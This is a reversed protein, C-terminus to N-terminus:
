ILSMTCDICDRQVAIVGRYLHCRWYVLSCVYSFEFRPANRSYVLCCVHSYKFRPANRSYVLSCVNSFKFRPATRSSISCTRPMSRSGGPGRACRTRRHVCCCLCHAGLVHSGTHGSHMVGLYMVAICPYTAAKRFKKESKESTRKKEGKQVNGLALHEDAARERHLPLHIWAWPYESRAGPRTGDWGARLSGAYESADPEQLRCQAAPPQWFLDCFFLFMMLFIAYESADPEQM